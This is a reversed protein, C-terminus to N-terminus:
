LTPGNRPAPMQRAIYLVLLAFVVALYTAFTIFLALSHGLGANTAIVMPLVFATVWLAAKGETHPYSGGSVWAAILLLVFAVAISAALAVFYHARTV